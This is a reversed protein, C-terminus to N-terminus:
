AKILKNLDEESLVLVLHPRIKPPQMGAMANPVGGRGLVVELLGSPEQVPQQRLRRLARGAPAEDLVRHGEEHGQVLGQDQGGRRRVVPRNARLDQHDQRGQEGGAPPDRLSRPDAQLQRPVNLPKKEPM